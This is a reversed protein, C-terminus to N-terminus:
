DGTGELWAPRPPHTGYFRKIYHRHWRSPCHPEWGLRTLLRASIRWNAVDTLLADSRKIRAIEDLVDLVRYFSALSGARTSIVYQLTLFNPYRRPQNYYLVCRDGRAHRHQWAGTLLVYPLSVVAPWPRLMVRRFQGDIAEIVGHRGRRIAEAGRTLDTITSFLSRM